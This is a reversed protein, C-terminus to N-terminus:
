CTVLPNYRCKYYILKLMEYSLKMFRRLYSESKVDSKAPSVGIKLHYGQFVREFTWLSRGTHYDSTVIIISKVGKDLAYKRTNLADHISGSSSYPLKVIANEPVQMKLLNDEAWEVGYLNRQKEESWSSFVGDNTLVIKNAKGEKYLRAATPLRKSTDGAMVVIADAHQLPKSVVLYEELASVSLRVLGWTFIITLFATITTKRIVSAISSHNSM